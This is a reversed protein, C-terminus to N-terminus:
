AIDDHGGVPENSVERVIEYDWWLRGDEYFTRTFRKDEFEKKPISGCFAGDIIGHYLTREARTILCTQGEVQLIMSAQLENTHASVVEGDRVVVRHEMRPFSMARDGTSLEINYIEGSYIPGLKKKQSQKQEKDM